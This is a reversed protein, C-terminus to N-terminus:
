GMRGKEGRADTGVLRQSNQSTEAPNFTMMEGQEAGQLGNEGGGRVGSMGRGRGTSGEGARSVRGVGRM